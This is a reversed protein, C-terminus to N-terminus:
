NRMLQQEPTEEQQKPKFNNCADNLEKELNEIDDETKLVQKIEEKPEKNYKDIIENRKSNMKTGYFSDKYNDCDYLEVCYNYKPNSKM